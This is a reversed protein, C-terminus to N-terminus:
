QFFLAFQYYINSLDAGVPIAETFQIPFEKSFKNDLREFLKEQLVGVLLPINYEKQYALYISQDKNDQHMACGLACGKGSEGFYSGQIIEDAKYHAKLRNLLFEKLKPDGYFAGKNKDKM